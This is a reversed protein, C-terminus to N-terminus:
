EESVGTGLLAATARGARRSKRGVADLVRKLASLELPTLGVTKYPIGEPPRTVPPEQGNADQVPKDSM